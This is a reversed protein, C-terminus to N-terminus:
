NPRFLSPTANPYRIARTLWDVFSAISDVTYPAERRSSSRTEVRRMARPSQEGCELCDRSADQFPHAWWTQKAFGQRVTAHLNARSINPSVHHQWRNQTRIRSRACPDQQKLHLLHGELSQKLHLLIPPRPAHDVHQRDLHKISTDTPREPAILKASM